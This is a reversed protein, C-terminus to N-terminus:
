KEELIGKLPDEPKDKVQSHVIFTETESVGELEHIEKVLDTLEDRDEARVELIGSFRGFLRFFKSVQHFENITEENRKRAEDEPDEQLFVYARINLGFKEPELRAKLDKIFGSQKFEKIKKSVTQRSAGVKEAIDVVPQEADRLLELFIKKDLDKM